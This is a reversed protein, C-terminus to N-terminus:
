GALLVNGPKVDRHVIGKAHAAELADLVKLGIGAAAAPALPGDRRIVEALSPGAVLEMVIWPREDEIVVDHVTIVGPHDILGAALADLVKAGVRAAAAAALPGDRRTVEALSPGDVLEMVIWPREDEIVVDHVTIVGPHDILAAARAERQARGTAVRREEATLV